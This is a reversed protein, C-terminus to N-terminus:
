EMPRGLFRRVETAVPKADDLWPVHGFGDLVVLEGQPLTRTFRTWIDVSGVPDESGYVMLTPNVIAGLEADAFRLDPHFANKKWDVISRVM